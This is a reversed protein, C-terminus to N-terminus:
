LDIAGGGNKMRLEENKITIERDVAAVIEPDYAGGARFDNKKLIMLQRKTEEDPVEIILPRAQFSREKAKEQAKDHRELVYRIARISPPCHKKKVVRCKEYDEVSNKKDPIYVIKEEKQVYGELLQKLGMRASAVLTEERCTIADDVAEKFEPRTKKWHYFTKPNINVIKCIESVGFLDQEIMEIIRTATKNSYKM